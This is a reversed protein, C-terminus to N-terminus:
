LPTPQHYRVPACAHARTPSPASAAFFGSTSRPPGNIMLVSAGLFTSSFVCLLNFTFTLSVCTCFMIELGMRDHMDLGEEELPTDNFAQASTQQLNLASFAFGALLASATAVTNMESQLYGIEKNVIEAKQAALPPRPDAHLTRAPPRHTARMGRNTATLVELDAALM